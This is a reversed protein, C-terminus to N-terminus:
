SFLLNGISIFFCLPISSNQQNLTPLDRLIFLSKHILLYLENNVNNLVCIDEFLTTNGTGKVHDRISSSVCKITKGKKNIGLHWIAHRKAM